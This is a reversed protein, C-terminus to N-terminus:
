LQIGDKDGYLVISGFALAHYFLEDEKKMKELKKNTLFLPKASKMKKNILATLPAVLEDNM